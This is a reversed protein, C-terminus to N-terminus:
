SGLGNAERACAAAEAFHRRSWAPCCGLAVDAGDLCRNAGCRSPDPTRSAAAFPHPCLPTDQRNRNGRHRARDCRLSVGTGAATSGVRRLPRTLPHSDGEGLVEVQAPEGSRLRQQLQCGRQDVRTWPIQELDECRIRRADLVERKPAPRRAVVQNFRALKPCCEAKNHPLTGFSTRMSM